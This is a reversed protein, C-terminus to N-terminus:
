RRFPLAQTRDAPFRDAPLCRDTSSPGLDGARIAAAAGARDAFTRLYETVLLHVEGSRWAPESDRLHREELLEVPGPGETPLLRSLLVLEQVLFIRWRGDERRVLHDGSRCEVAGAPFRLM